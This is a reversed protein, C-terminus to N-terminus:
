IRADREKCNAMLGKAENMSDVDGKSRYERDWLLQRLDSIM